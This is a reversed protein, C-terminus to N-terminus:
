VQVLNFPMITRFDTSEFYNGNSGLIECKMYIEAVSLMLTVHCLFLKLLMSNNVSVCSLDPSLLYQIHNTIIILIVKTIYSKLNERRHSHLITDEPIYLGM